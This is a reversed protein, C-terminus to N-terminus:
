EPAAPRSLPTDPGRRLVARRIRRLLMPLFMKPYKYLLALTSMSAKVWSRARVQRSLDDLRAGGDENEWALRRGERIARRRGADSGVFSEQRDLALLTGALMARHDLSMNAGHMRYEAIVERHCWIPHRQAVRLYMEYDESCRQEVSFGGLEALVTRRFMVIVPPGVINERLLLDYSPTGEFTCGEATLPDGRADIMRLYGWVLACEPRATLAQIGAELANPLLRDDADLFVVFEGSCETLGRNRAGSLGRNEQALCRVGSYRAVVERVNDPSGDDIVLIEHAPHAQALASEIADGLFHAQAYCPIVVSVLPM